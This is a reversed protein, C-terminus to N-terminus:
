RFRKAFMMQGGETCRLWLFVRGWTDWPSCNRQLWVARVVIRSNHRGLVLQVAIEFRGPLLDNLRVVQVAIALNVGGVKGGGVEHSLIKGDTIRHKDLFVLVQVLSQLIATVVDTGDPNHVALLLLCLELGSSYDERVTWRVLERPAVVASLSSSSPLLIAYSEMM